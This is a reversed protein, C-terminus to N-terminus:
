DLALSDLMKRLRTLQDTEAAEGDILNKLHPSVGEPAEILEEPVEGPNLVRDPVFEASGMLDSMTPFFFDDHGNHEWSWRVVIEESDILKGASIRAKCGCKMSVKSSRRRPKSPDHRDRPAGSHACIYIHSWEYKRRRKSSSSSSAGPRGVESEDDEGDVPAFREGKKRWFRRSSPSDLFKEWIEVTISTTYPSTQFPGILTECTKQYSILSEIESLKSRTQILEKLTKNAADKAMPPKIRNPSSAVIYNVPNNVPLMAISPLAAEETVAKKKPNEPTEVKTTAEYSEVLPQLDLIPEAKRDSPVSHDQAVEEQAEIGDTSSPPSLLSSTSSAMSTSSVSSPSHLSTSSKSRKREFAADVIRSWKDPRNELQKFKELYRATEPPLYSIRGPVLFSYASVVALGTGVDDVDNAEREM